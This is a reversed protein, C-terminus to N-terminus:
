AKAIEYDQAMWEKTTTFSITLWIEHPPYGLSKSIEDRIRDLAAVGQIPYDKDVLIDIEIVKERGFAQVSSVYDNFRYQEMYEDMVNQVHTHVDQPAVGLLQKVSPIIIKLTPPIMQVSLILMIVPDIYVGIWAFKTYQMAWAVTFSILLGTALSADVFWSVNDYHVLYSKVKKNTQRVYYYFAWDAVTFFAAYYAAVGFSMKHGGALLCMVGANFAYVVIFMTFVGEVLMVVPELQWYGFQFQRSSERRTLNSTVMMLMKIFVAAVSFIGDLFIAQSGSWLGATIGGIAVISMMIASLLLLNRETHIKCKM